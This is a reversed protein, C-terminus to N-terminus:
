ACPLNGELVGAAAEPLDVPLQASSLAVPLQPAQSGPEAQLAQAVRLLLAPDDGFIVVTTTGTYVELQLGHDFSAGPAGRVTVEDYEIPNLGPGSSYSTINRECAPWSQIELPPACSGDTNDGDSPPPTCDGYIYSVYNAREPEEPYPLDCRRMVNTVPLGEFVPGASYTTFNAPEDETTCPLLSGPDLTPGAARTGATSVSASQEVEADPPFILEADVQWSREARRGMGDTVVVQITHVGDTYQGPHFSLTTNLACGGNGCDQQRSDRAVGDVLLSATRVGSGADSAAVAVDVVEGEYLPRMDDGADKLPGSVSLTPDNNDVGVTTPASVATNPGGYADRVRDAAGASVLYNGDPYQGSATTWDCSPAYNGAAPEPNVRSCLESTGGGPPQVRLTWRDAGSHADSMAGRVQVTGGVWRGPSEVSSAPVDHDIRLQSNTAHVVKSGNNVYATLKLEHVGSPVTSTDLCFRGKPVTQTERLVGDVRMEIKQFGRALEYWREGHPGILYIDADSVIYDVCRNGRQWESETLPGSWDVRTERAQYAIDRHNKTPSGLGGEAPAWV